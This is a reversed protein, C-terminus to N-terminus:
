MMSLWKKKPRGRGRKGNVRLEMVTRVAKLDERKMVLGFWRLRNERMKDIISVVDISGRIYKNRIREERIVWNM